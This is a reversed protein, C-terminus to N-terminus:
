VYAVNTAYGISAQGAASPALAKVVSGAPVQCQTLIVTGGSPVQFSGTTTSVPSGGTTQAVFITSAGSNNIVLDRAYAGFPNASSSPVTYLATDTTNVTVVTQWAVAIAM